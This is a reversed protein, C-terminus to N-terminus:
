DLHALINRIGSLTHTHTLIQTHNANTIICSTTTLCFAWIHRCSHLWTATEQVHQLLLHSLGLLLHFLVLILAFLKLLAKLRLQPSAFFYSDASSKIFLLSLTTHWAKVQGAGRLTWHSSNCQQQPPKEMSYYYPPLHLSPSFRHIFACLTSCFGVVLVQELTESVQKKYNPLFNATELPTTFLHTQSEQFWQHSITDIDSVCVSCM